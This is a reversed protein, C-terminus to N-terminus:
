HELKAVQTHSATTKKAPKVKALAEEKIAKLEAPNQLEYSKSTQQLFKEEDKLYEPADSRDQKTLQNQKERESSYKSKRPDYTKPLTAM